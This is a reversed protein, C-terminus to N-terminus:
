ELGLKHTVRIVGIADYIWVKSDTNKSCLPSDIYTVNTFDPTREPKISKYDRSRPTDAFCRVGYYIGRYIVLIDIGKLDLQINYRIGAENDKLIKNERLQLSLILDRVLSPFVRNLRCRLGEIEILDFNSIVKQVVKSNIYGDKFQEQTPIQQKNIVYNWFYIVFKPLRVFNEIKDNYEKPFEVKYDRIQEIAKQSTFLVLGLENPFQTINLENNKAESM